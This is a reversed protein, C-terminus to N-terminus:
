DNTAEMAADITVRPTPYHIEPERVKLPNPELISYEVKGDGIFHTRIVNTHHFLWELRKTDQEGETLRRLLETHLAKREEIASDGAIVSMGYNLILMGGSLKTLDTM